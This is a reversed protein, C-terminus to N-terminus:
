HFRSIVQFCLELGSLVTDSVKEGAPLVYIIIRVDTVMLFKSPLTCIINLYVVM